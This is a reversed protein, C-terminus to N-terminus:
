STVNGGPERPDLYAEIAHQVPQNCPADCRQQGDIQESGCNAPNDVTPERHETADGRRSTAANFLSRLGDCLRGSDRWLHQLM